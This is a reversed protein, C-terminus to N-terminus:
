ASVPKHGRLKGTSTVSTTQHCHNCRARPSYYQLGSSDHDHTGSGPCQTKAKEAKKAAEEVEYKNTWEVPATPFCVTCLLAGHADVADKEGLGSLEPLWSFQTPASTSRNCTSCNLSSHIHGGKNQVLFFRSWQEENYIAELPQAKDRLAGRQAILTDHQGLTKRIDNAEYPMLTDSALKDQAKEQLEAWAPFHPVRSRGYYEPRIRLSHALSRSTSDLKADVKATEYWLDALKTDIEVERRVTTTSDTEM